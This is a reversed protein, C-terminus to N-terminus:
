IINTYTKKTAILLKFSVLNRIEIITNAPIIDPTNSADDSIKLESKNERPM